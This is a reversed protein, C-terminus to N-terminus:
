KEIYHYQSIDDKEGYLYKSNGYQTLGPPVNNAIKTYLQKGM